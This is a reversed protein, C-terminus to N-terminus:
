TFKPRRPDLVYLNGHVWRIRRSAEPIASSTYQPDPQIRLMDLGVFSSTQLMDIPTYGFNVSIYKGAM